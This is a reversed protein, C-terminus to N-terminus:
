WLGGGKGNGDKSTRCETSGSHHGTGDQTNFLKTGIEIIECLAAEMIPIDEGYKAQLENILAATSERETMCEAMCEALFGEFEAGYLIIYNRWGNALYLLPNEFRLLYAADEESIWDHNFSMFAAIDCVASIQEAQEYVEAGDLLVIKAKYETYRWEIRERLLENNTLRREYEATHQTHKETNKM